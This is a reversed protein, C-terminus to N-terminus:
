SGEGRTPDDAGGVVAATELATAADDVKGCGRAAEGGAGRGDCDEEVKSDMGKACDIGGWRRGSVGNGVLIM